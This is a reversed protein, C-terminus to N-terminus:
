AFQELIGDIDEPEVKGFSVDDIRMTPSLACLGLCRVTRLTFRGKRDTQGALIGLKKELRSLLAASHQSHCSTGNCVQIVHRGAPTFGMKDYFSAVKLVEALPISLRVAAHELLPRPLHGRTRNIAELVPMLAGPDGAHRAVLDDLLEQDKKELEERALPENVTQPVNRVPCRESCDGCGTCKDIDVFRPRTTVTAKFNGAQGDLRTVEAMTMVEINLDRM